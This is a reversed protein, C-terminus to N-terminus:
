FPDPNHPSPTLGSGLFAGLNHDSVSLGHVLDTTTEEKFSLAAPTLLSQLAYMPSDPALNPINWLEISLLSFHQLIHLQIYTMRSLIIQNHRIETIM